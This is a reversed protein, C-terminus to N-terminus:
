LGEETSLEIRRCIWTWREVGYLPRNWVLIWRLAFSDIRVGLGVKRLGQGGVVRRIEARWERNEWLGLDWRKVGYM